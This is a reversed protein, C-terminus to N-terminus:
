QAPNYACADASDEEAPNNRGPREPKPGLTKAVVQRIYAFDPDGPNFDDSSRFVVSKLRHDKMELALDVFAPLLMRPIDTSILKKGAAALGQYRRLLNIPNAENAIANIMCRQRDMREYDDSGYRGRAFWLSQNGNLHQNPGPDLYDDPAIGATTNGGIAIPENINVTVGGMADILERFGEINVLAYYDVRVGTSGQIATKIADAGEDHSGAFLDPHLLPVQSYIANLMWNGADGEGTFGDPYLSNLKSGNPFRAFMMNRPLSFTVAKATSTNISALIMSDTRVGVRGPAGDGGLLLVNVSKRGGWPDEASVHTPSTATENNEFVAQVLDAQVMAYRAAVAVPATVALCLVAVFAYGCWAQWTKTDTPRVMVFTTVVVAIWSVLAVAVIITALKLRTPDFAFNLAARVSRPLYLFASIAAAVSASMVAVGLVRRGTFYYGLGPLVASLTTLGLAGSM